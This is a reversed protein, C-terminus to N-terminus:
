ENDDSDEEDVVMEEEMRRLEEEAERNQRVLEEYAERERKERALREAEEAMKRLREVEERKAREEAELKAKKRAAKEAKRAEKAKELREQEAAIKAKKEDLEAKMRAMREEHSETDTKPKKAPSNESRASSAMTAASRKLSLDPSHSPAAPAAMPPATERASSTAKPLAAFPTTAHKPGKRPLLPPPAMTTQDGTKQQAPQQETECAAGDGEQGVFLPSGERGKGAGHQQGIPSGRWSSGDAAQMLVFDPGSKFCIEQATMLGVNQPIAHDDCYQALKELPISGGPSALSRIEEYSIEYRPSPSTLKAKSKAGLISNGLNLGNFPSKEAPSSATPPKVTPSTAHFPKRPQLLTYPGPTASYSAKGAASNVGTSVGSRPSSLAPSAATTPTAMQQFPEPGFLDNEQEDLQYGGSYDNDHGHPLDEFSPSPRLPLSTDQGVFLGDSEEGPSREPAPVLEPQKAPRRNAPRSASGPSFDDINVWESSEGADAEEGSHLGRVGQKVGQASGGLRKSPTPDVHVFEEGEKTVLKQWRDPRPIAGAAKIIHKSRYYFIFTAWPEKGFRTQQFHRRHKAQKDLAVNGNTTRVALEYDPEIGGNSIIDGTREFWSGCTMDDYKMVFNEEVKQNLSVVVTLSGVGVKYGDSKMSQLMNHLQHGGKILPKVVIDGEVVTADQAVPVHFVKGYNLTRPQYCKLEGETSGEIRKDLVFSGDALLDFCTHLVTGNFEGKLTIVDGLSVPVFCELTDMPHKAFHSETPLIYEPCPVGNACVVLTCNQDTNPKACKM